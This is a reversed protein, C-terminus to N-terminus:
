GGFIAARPYFSNVKMGHEDIGTCLLAQKGRLIWWRKFIDALVMSYMHGVHPDLCTLIENFELQILTRCVLM